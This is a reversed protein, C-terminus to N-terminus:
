KERSSSSVSEHVYDDMDECRHSVAALAGEQSVNEVEAM